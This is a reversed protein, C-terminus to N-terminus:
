WQRGAGMRQPRGLLSSGVPSRRSSKRAQINTGACVQACAIGLVLALMKVLSKAIQNKM